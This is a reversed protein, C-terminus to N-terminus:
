LELWLVLVHVHVEFSCVIVGQECWVAHRTLPDVCLVGKTLEECKNTGLKSVLM